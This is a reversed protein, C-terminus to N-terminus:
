IAARYKSMAADGTQRSDAIGLVATVASCCYLHLAVAQILGELGPLTLPLGLVHTLVEPGFHCCSIPLGLGLGLRLLVVGGGVDQILGKHGLNRCILYPQGRSTPVYVSVGAYSVGSM